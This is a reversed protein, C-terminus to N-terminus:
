DGAPEKPLPAALEDTPHRRRGTATEISLGERAWYEYGGIM